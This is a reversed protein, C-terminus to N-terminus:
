RSRRRDSSVIDVIVVTRVNGETCNLPIERGKSPNCVLVTNVVCLQLVKVSGVGCELHYQHGGIVAKSANLRPGVLHCGALNPPLRELDLLLLHQNNGFLTQVDQAMDTDLCSTGVMGLSTKRLDLLIDVLM